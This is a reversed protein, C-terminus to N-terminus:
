PFHNIRSFYQLKGAFPGSVVIMVHKDARVKVKKQSKNDCKKIKKYRINAGTTVVM